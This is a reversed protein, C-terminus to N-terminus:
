TLTLGLYREEFGVHKWFATAQANWVLVEVLVRKDRAFWNRRLQAFAQSGVGQRRYAADVYFHRLHTCERLDRFLAYGCPTGNAEFVCARYEAVLWERLRSALEDVPLPADNREDAILQANWAALQALDDRDAERVGVIV